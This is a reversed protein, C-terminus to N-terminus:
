RQNLFVRDEYKRLEDIKHMLKLIVEEYREMVEESDQVM